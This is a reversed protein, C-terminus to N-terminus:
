KTQNKDNKLREFFQEVQLEVEAQSNGTFTFVESKSNIPKPSVRGDPMLVLVEARVNIIAQHPVKDM